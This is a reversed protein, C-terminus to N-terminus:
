TGPAVDGRGALRMAPISAVTRVAADLLTAPDAGLACAAEYPSALGELQACMLMASHLVEDPTMDPFEAAVIASLVELYSRMFRQWAQRSAEDHHARAEIMMLVGGRAALLTESAVFGIINILRARGDSEAAIRAIRERYGDVTRQVFADFLAAKTPYHHQLAALSVGVSRAVDRMSVEDLGKQQAITELCALARLATDGTRAPPDSDPRRQPAM